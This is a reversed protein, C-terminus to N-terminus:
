GAAVPRDVHAKFWQELLMFVWIFVGYYTAHDEDHLRVLRDIFDGRVIKRERLDELSEMAIERLRPHERMWLGFPMGFGHKRKNLIKDPLFDRLAHKYFWRLKLGKVKLHAPLRCTFEVLEDSLLPYAVRVGGLECMRSVKPLDNDALTFRLSMALMRNVMSEARAGEYTEIQVQLPEETDVTELFDPELVTGPGLRELHNYSQARRPMPVNAQRIYSRVKRVPPLRDGMPFGFVLPELIARRFAAPVNQYFGFVKQKAYPKNGAFLEDGGDGALM